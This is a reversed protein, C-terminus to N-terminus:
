EGPNGDDDGSGDSGGPGAGTGDGSGHKISTGTEGAGGRDGAPDGTDKKASGGCAPLLFAVALALITRRGRKMLERPAVGPGVPAAAFSREYSGEKGCRVVNLRSAVDCRGFCDCEPRTTM